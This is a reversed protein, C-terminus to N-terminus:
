FHRLYFITFYQRNKVTKSSLIKIIVWCYRNDDNQNQPRIPQEGPNALNEIQQNEM